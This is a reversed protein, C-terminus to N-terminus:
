VPWDGSVGIRDEAEKPQDGLRKMADCNEGAFFFVRTTHTKQRIGSRCYNGESGYQPWPGAATKSMGILCYRSPSLNSGSVVRRKPMANSVAM